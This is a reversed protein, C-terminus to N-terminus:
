FSPPLFDYFYSSTGDTVWMYLRQFNNPADIYFFIDGYNLATFDPPTDGYYFSTAWYAKGNGDSKISQGANGFNGSFAIGTNTSLYVEGTVSLNGTSISNGFTSDNGLVVNTSNSSFTWLGTSSNVQMTEDSIYLTNGSLYLDKWAHTANGLSYTVNSSPVLNGGVNGSVVFNTTTLTNTTKNFTFAASGGFSSADNFQVETNSGGPSGGGGGGGSINVTVVSGVNTATVGSGTFDITTVGSTLTVGEDQITISPGTAGTPGAVGTAGATGAVGTAGTPGATGAAGTAGQIGTAGTSGASGASGQPGTAGTPGNIGTAGQIGTAGTPGQFVGMDTYASGTWVWLHPTPIGNLVVYADGITPAPSVPLAAQNAVAGKIIITGPNIGGVTSGTPLAVATSTSSITASGLRISNGSLYLDRWAHTANGLDYTVNAAPILDTLALLNGPGTAGQPGTAGTAGAGGAGGGGGAAWSLNGAGDTTLVYGNTGGTITINGVAGLTVPGVFSAGSASVFSGPINLNGTTKDFTFGNNGAPDGNDNFTVQSNSGPAGQGSVDVLAGDIELVGDVTIPTGYLGQYNASITLTNGDDIKLPMPAPSQTSTADVWTLNGSGDTRLVYGTNGGSIHVNGVNGLTVNGDSVLVNGTTM